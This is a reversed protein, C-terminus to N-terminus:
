FRRPGTHQTFRFYTPFHVRACHKLHTIQAVFTSFINFYLPSFSHLTTIHLPALASALAAAMFLLRRHFIHFQTHTHTARRFVVNRLSTNLAFHDSLSSVKPNSIQGIVYAFIAYSFMKFPLYVKGLYKAHWM